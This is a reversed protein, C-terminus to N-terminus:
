SNKKNFWIQGANEPLKDPQSSKINKDKPQKLIKVIEKVKEEDRIITDAIFSDKGM